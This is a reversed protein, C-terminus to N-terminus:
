GGLTRAAADFQAIFLTWHIPPIGITLVLVYPYQGKIPAAFNDQHRCTVLNSEKVFFLISKFILL